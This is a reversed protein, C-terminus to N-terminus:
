NIDKSQHTNINSYSWYADVNSVISSTIISYYDINSSNLVSIIDNHVKEADMVEDDVIPSIARITTVCAAKDKTGTTLKGNKEIASVTYRKKVLGIILSNELDDNNPHTIWIIFQPQNAM